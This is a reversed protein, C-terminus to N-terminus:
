GICCKRILREGVFCGVIGSGSGQYDTNVFLTRNDNRTGTCGIYQALVHAKHVDGAYCIAEVDVVAAM